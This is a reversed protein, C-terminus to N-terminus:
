TGIRLFASSGALPAPQGYRGACFQDIALRAGLDCVGNYDDFVVAGGPALRPITFRCADWTGQYINADIHVFAFHPDRRELDVFTDAFLGQHIEIQDQVSLIEAQRRIVTVQDAPPVFEGRSRSVDFSSTEPIGQFTDLLLTNQRLGNMRALLAVLLATAGRYSGCEIVDGTVERVQWWVGLLAELRGQPMTLRVGAEQLLHLAESYGPPLPLPHYTKRSFERLPNFFANWDWIPLRLAKRHLLYRPLELAYYRPGLQLSRGIKQLIASTYHSHDFVQAPQRRLEM